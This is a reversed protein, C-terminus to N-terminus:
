ILEKMRPSMASLEEALARLDLMHAADFASHGIRHQERHHDNCLPVTWWDAPKLATGGGTEVRVHAPVIAKSCCGKVACPLTRIWALHGPNRKPDPQRTQVPFKPSRMKREANRVAACTM